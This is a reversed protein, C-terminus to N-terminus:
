QPLTQPQRTANWARIAAGYEARVQAIKDQDNVHLNRKEQFLRSRAQRWTAILAPDPSEKQTEKHIQASYIAMMHTILEGACEFAVAEDQTWNARMAEEADSAALLIRGTPNASLTTRIEIDFGLRTLCDMLKRESLQSFDGRLLGSVKAQSIGLRKAAETQTLGLRNLELAIQITLGSKLHLTEADKLLLDAFVSGSSPEFEKPEPTTM